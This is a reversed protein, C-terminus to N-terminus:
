KKLDQKVVLQCNVGKSKLQKYHKLSTTRIMIIQKITIQQCIYILVKTYFFKKNVIKNTYQM